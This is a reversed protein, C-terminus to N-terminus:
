FSHRRRKRTNGTCQRRDHYGGESELYESGDERNFSSPLYADESHHDTIMEHYRMNRWISIDLSILGQNVNLADRNRRNNQAYCEKRTKDTNHLADPDGKKLFAKHYENNFKTLFKLADLAKQDNQGARKLLEFSFEDDIFEKSAMRHGRKFAGLYEKPVSRSM